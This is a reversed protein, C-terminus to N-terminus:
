AEAKRMELGHITKSWGKSIPHEFVEDIDELPRGNTEPMYVFLVLATLTCTGAYLFYAGFSSGALFIPTVFAM